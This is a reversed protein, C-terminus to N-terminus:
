YAYDRVDVSSEYEMTDSVKLKGTFVEDIACSVPKQELPIGEAEAISAIDRARRAVLNVLLYRSGVKEVLSAVPPYLMM